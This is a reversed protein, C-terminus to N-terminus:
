ALIQTAREHAEVPNMKQKIFQGTLDAIRDSGTVREEALLEAQTLELGDNMFSHITSEYDSAAAKRDDETKGYRPSHRMDEIKGRIPKDPTAIVAGTEPDHFTSGHSGFVRLQAADNLERLNESRAAVEQQHAAQADRQAQERAQEDNRRTEERAQAAERQTQEYQALADAREQNLRAELADRESNQQEALRREEIHQQAEFDAQGAGSRSHEM